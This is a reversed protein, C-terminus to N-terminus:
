RQLFRQIRIKDGLVQQVTAGILGTSGYPFRSAVVECRTATDGSFTVTGRTGPKIRADLAMPDVAYGEYVESIGNIGPLTETQPLAQRLYLSVTLTETQPIVNGYPDTTTGLTPLEFVATANALATLASTM